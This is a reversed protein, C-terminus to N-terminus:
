KPIFHKSKFYNRMQNALHLPACIINDFEPINIKHEEDKYGGGCIQLGAVSFTDHFNNRGNPPHDCFGGREDQCARLLCEHIGKTNWFPPINLHKSIISAATGIWWSYCSDYLKNPRGDFGGSFQSQRNAIWQACKSLDISDLKGLIALSSIGSFVYGGHSENNPLPGFGGDYNFCSLVYDLTGSTLEPTLINISDAIMLACFTSRLDYEMGKATLFAGNPLKLSLLTDYIKHQDILQYAEETAICAIGNIFGYNNILHPCDYLADTFFGSSSIRCRIYQTLASQIRSFEEPQTQPFNSIILPIMAYFPNWGYLMSGEVNSKINILDLAKDILKPLHLIPDKLLYLLTTHRCREEMEITKTVYDESDCKDNGFLHLQESDSM